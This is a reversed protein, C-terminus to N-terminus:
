EKPTLHVQVQHRGDAATIPAPTEAAAKVRLPGASTFTLTVVEPPPTYDLTSGPQVAPRLLNWLDVQSRLTLTGNQRLVPWLSGQEASGKTFTEAVAPDLHPLWGSWSATGPKAQWSAAVGSLDYGLDIAPHQPLGGAGKGVAGLGPLTLAYSVAEAHPATTLVPHRRDGTVQASLVPLDHRPAQFQQRVVEYGPRLTEFRDGPRVHAGYEIAVGKIIKRLQEPDLPRDLAVRVEAPGAAWTAV